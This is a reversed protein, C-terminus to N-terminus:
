YSGYDDGQRELWSREAAIDKAESRIDKIEAKLNAIVAADRRAQEQAALLASEAAEARQLLWNTLDVLAGKSRKAGVLRMAEIYSADSGNRVPHHALIVADEPLPQDQDTWTKLRTIERQAEAIAAEAAALKLGWEGRADCQWRAAQYARALMLVQPRYPGSKAALLEAALKDVAAFDPETTM